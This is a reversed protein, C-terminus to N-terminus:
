RGRPLGPAKRVLGLLEAARNDLPLEACVKSLVAEVQRFTSQRAYPSGRLLEATEAACAALRFRPPTDAARRVLDRARIPSAIEEVRATEVDLYRVRVTGIEGTTKLLELEYLATASQGSGIEGADVADNRFDADAIDRNEYGLLRYRRVVAPDFEVQTKADKAVAQLSALEQVFVREAEAENDVFVYQGDGNNALQEMLRDNYKGTGFGATNMRIGQRRDQDVVKLIQRADAPGVNAIGDSILLVTNHDGSRFTKQAQQYAVKLGETVNTSGGTQLSEVVAAIKRRNGKVPTEDLVLRAKTGYSVVSVRDRPHLNAVLMRAAKQALALREPKGMSSSTDVCLILNHPRRGDRGVRKAKVGVKLLVLNPRFPSRAAITHISFVKAASGPYNYDFSNVFEEVRVRSRPPLYGNRICNRALSYSGTDTELAFTSLADDKTLVFPNVRVEADDPMGEEREKYEDAEDRKTEVPTKPSTPEPKPKPEPKTPEGPGATEEGGGEGRRREDGDRDKTRDPTDPRLAAPDIENKLGEVRDYTEGMKEGDSLVTTRGSRERKEKAFERRLAKAVQTPKDAPLDAAAAAQPATEPEREEKPLREFYEKLLEKSRKGGVDKIAREDTATSASRDAQTTLGAVRKKKEDWDDPALRESMRGLDPPPAVTAAPAESKREAASEEEKGRRSARPPTPTLGSGPARALKKGDGWKRQDGRAVGGAFKQTQEMLKQFRGESMFEVHSDFFVVNRGDRGPVKKEWALPTSGDVQSEKLKGPVKDLISEYDSTFEGGKSASDTAPNLFVRGEEIVGNKKLDELSSPYAGGGHKMRWMETGNAIQGLNSASRVKRAEDRARGLSPVLMGAAVLVLLLSVAAAAAVRSTSSQQPQLAKRVKALAAKVPVRRCRALLARGWRGPALAAAKRRAPWALRDLAARHEENLAPEEAAALAEKLLGSAARMDRALAACTECSDLHERVEDLLPPEVEGFVCAALLTEAQECNM